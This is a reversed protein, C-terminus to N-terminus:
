MMYTTIVSGTLEALTFVAEFDDWTLYTFSEYGFLDDECQVRISEFKSLQGNVMLATMILVINEDVGVRTNYRHEQRGEKHLRKKM